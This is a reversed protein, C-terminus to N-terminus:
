SLRGASRRRGLREQDRLENKLILQCIDLLRIIRELDLMRKRYDFEIMGGILLDLRNDICRPVLRNIMRIKPLTYGHGDLYGHFVSLRNMPQVVKMHQAFGLADGVSGFTTSILQQTTLLEFLIAGLSYVDAARNWEEPIDVGSFLEPASYRLDGVPDRYEVKLPPAKNLFRITGFDSLKVQRGTSTNEFLFNGPKLDRHFCNLKHLRNVGRVMERFCSIRGLVDHPTQIPTAALEEADGGNMWEFALFPLHIEYPTGSPLPIQFVFVSPEDVLQVFRDEGRLLGWLLRGEREFALRRYADGNSDVFFKLVVRKNGPVRRASFVRSFHGAESLLQPSHYVGNITGQSLVISKLAEAADV